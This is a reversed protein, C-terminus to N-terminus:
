HLTNLLFLLWNLETSQLIIVNATVLFLLALYSVHRTTGTTQCWQSNRIGVVM